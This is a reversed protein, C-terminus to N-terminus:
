ECCASSRPSLKFVFRNSPWEIWQPDTPFVKRQARFTEDDHSFSWLIRLYFIYLSNHGPSVRGRHWTRLIHFSFLKQTRDAVRGPLHFLYVESDFFILLSGFPSEFAVLPFVFKEKPEHFNKVENEDSQAKHAPAAMPSVLTTHRSQFPDFPFNRNYFSGSWM